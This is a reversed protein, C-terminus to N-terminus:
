PPRRSVLNLQEDLSEAHVIMAAAAHGDRSKMCEKASKWLREAEPSSIPRHLISGPFSSRLSQDSGFQIDDYSEPAILQELRLNM